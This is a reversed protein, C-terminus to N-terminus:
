KIIPVYQAALEEFEKIVKNDPTFYSNEYLKGLSDYKAKGLGHYSLLVYQKLNRMGHIFKSISLTEDKTDNVSGVVPTRVIIPINEKDLRKLNELITNRDGHIHTTYINENYGKIDYMILDMYPLLVKLKSYDYNGATQIATHVNKNKLQKLLALCFENQLVPEGGSLTIGGGSQRYYTIDALVQEMVEDVTMTKGSLVLANTYCNQVCLGCATCNTRNITHKGDIFTHCKQPCKMKCSGCNICRQPFFQLQDEPTFSEPNHCWGCRNSCGKFFVTTRIGPGDHVAFRQIDFIRGRIDSMVEGRLYDILNNLRNLSNMNRLKVPVLEAQQAAKKNHLFLQQLLSTSSYATISKVM